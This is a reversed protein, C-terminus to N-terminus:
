GLKPNYDEFKEIIRWIRRNNVWRQVWRTEQPANHKDYIMVFPDVGIERLKYIRELDQEHSSNFNTLVYCNLKRYCFGTIKKVTEFRGRLDDNPNDWAFHIVDIKIKKLMASIHKDTLRIDLGQTFDIRAGSDILTQLINERESCALLNPDLLKIIKQGRWFQSLDAVQVSKCGEKQPVVCWPCKNPCGRTLFGYAESFQPYLAYDPCINEIEDPLKSELGYGTGGRIIEDANYCFADDPTFTFVKSMYIRDCHEVGAAWGVTDGLAKHHASLKM